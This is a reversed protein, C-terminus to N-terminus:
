KVNRSECTGKYYGIANTWASCADCANGFDMYGAVEPTAGVLRGCVPIYEKTCAQNRVSPCTYFNEDKEEPKQCIGGADPYNGDLVCTLGPECQFAAIGGCFEGMSGTTPDSQSENLPPAPAEDPPLIDPPEEAPATDNETFQPPTPTPPESSSPNQGLCGFFLIAIALIAALNLRKM